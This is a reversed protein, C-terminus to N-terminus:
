AAPWITAAATMTTSSASSTSCRRNARDSAGMISVLEGKEVTLDIGKLVHLPSGNDYTKNINELKIM